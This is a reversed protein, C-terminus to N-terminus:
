GEQTKRKKKGIILKKLHTNSLKTVQRLYKLIIGKEKKKLKGYRFKGLTRGIWEYRKQKNKNGKTESSFTVAGDVGKLFEQLQAISVIHEDNMTIKMCDGTHIVPSRAILGKRVWKARSGM